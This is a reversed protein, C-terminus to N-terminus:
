STIPLKAKAFWWAQEAITRWERSVELFRERDEAHFANNAKRETEEAKAWYYAILDDAQNPL